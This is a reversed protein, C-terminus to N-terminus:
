SSNGPSSLSCATGPGEMTAAARKTGLGRDCLYFEGVRRLHQIRGKLHGQVVHPRGHRSYPHLQGTRHEPVPRGRITHAPHPTGLDDASVEHRDATCTGLTSFGEAGVVFSTEMQLYNSLHRAVLELGADRADRGIKLAIRAYNLETFATVSVHGGMSAQIVSEMVSVQREAVDCVLLVHQITDINAWWQDLSGVVEQILRILELQSNSIEKSAMLGLKAVTDAKQQKTNLRDLEVAKFITVVSAAIVATMIAIMVTIPEFRKARLPYVWQLHIRAWKLTKRRQVLHRGHRHRHQFVLDATEKPNKRAFDEVHYNVPVFLEFFRSVRSLLANLRYEVRHAVKQSNLLTLDEMFHGSPSDTNHLPQVFHVQLARRQVAARMAKITDELGKVHFDQKINSYHLMRSSSRSKSFFVQAKEVRVRDTTGAVLTMIGGLLCCTRLLAPWLGNAIDRKQFTQFM